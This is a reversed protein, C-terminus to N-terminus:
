LYVGMERKTSWTNIYVDQGTYRRTKGQRVKDERGNCTHPETAQQYPVNEICAETDFPQFYKEFLTKM